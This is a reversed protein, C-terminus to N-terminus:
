EDEKKFESKSVSAKQLKWGEILKRLIGMCSHCIGVYVIDKFNVKELKYYIMVHTGCFICNMGEGENKTERFFKM